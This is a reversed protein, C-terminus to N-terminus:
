GPRLRARRGGGPNPSRERTKQGPPPNPHNLRGPRPVMEEDRDFGANARQGKQRNMRRDSHRRMTQEKGAHLTGFRRQADRRPEDQVPGVDSQRSLRVGDPPTLRKDVPAALNPRPCLITRAPGTDPKARSETKETALRVKRCSSVVANM